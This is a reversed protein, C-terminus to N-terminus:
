MRLARDPDNAAALTGLLLPPVTIPSGHDTLLVPGKLDRDVINEVALVDMHMGQRPSLQRRKSRVRSGAKLNVFDNILITSQAVKLSAIEKKHAVVPVQLM